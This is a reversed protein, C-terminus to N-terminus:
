HSRGLERTTRKCTLITPMMASFNMFMLVFFMCGANSLAKSADNGVGFYILGLLLGIVFHAMLRLKFLSSDRVMSRFTRKLLIWFQMAGSTPFANKAPQPLCESSDLLSTTCNISPTLGPKNLGNPVLDTSSEIPQTAGSTKFIDNSIHGEANAGPSKAYRSWNNCKGNNVAVVLKQVYEGHEGCAVEMVPFSM